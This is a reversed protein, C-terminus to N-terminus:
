LRHLLKHYRRYMLYIGILIIISVLLLLAWNSRADIVLENGALRSEFIFFLHYAALSVRLYEGTNPLTVNIDGPEIAIHGVHSTGDTYTFNYYVDLSPGGIKEIVLGKNVLAVVLDARYFSSGQYTHFRPGNYFVYAVPVSVKTFNDWLRISYGKTTPEVPLTLVRDIAPNFGVIPKFLTLTVNYIPKTSNYPYIIVRLMIPTENSLFPPKMLVDIGTLHVYVFQELPMTELEVRIHTNYEPNVIYVVPVSFLIIVLLVLLAITIKYEKTLQEKRAPLVTVVLYFRAM